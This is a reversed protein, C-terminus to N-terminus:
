RPLMLTHGTRAAMGLSMKLGYIRCTTIAMEIKVLTLKTLGTIFTMGGCGPCGDSIKLMIGARLKGQLAYVFLDITTFAVDLVLVLARRLSAITAM